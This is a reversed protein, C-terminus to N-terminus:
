KWSNMDEETPGLFHLALASIAGVIGAIAKPPIGFPNLGAVCGSVSLVFAFLCIALIARRIRWSMLLSWDRGVFDKM